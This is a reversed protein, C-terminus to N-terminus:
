KEDGFIIQQQILVGKALNLNVLEQWVSETVFPVFPHMIKLSEKLIYLLESLLEIRKLSGIKEEKIKEKIEEIWKDCLQHWFFERIEEAGLNFQYKEIYKSVKSIHRKTEVIRETKKIEKKSIEEIESKDINMIIFRSANWIKNVFNRNGKIKEERLPINSGPLANSYYWLRLADAGYRDFITKPEEYNGKSKSMKSGDSAFIMGTLFIDKFPVEGTRYLGLMLMRASWWFLIDRGHIMVQTPYYKKFDDGNVGGMTSFPWQGSSFWTDFVDEEKEWIEGNESEPEEDGLHIEGTGKITINHEKEFDTVSKGKNQLLWDYLEKGGSYWVPIRQGWWLQRSICWPQIEKFFHELAKGQGKPYVKVNGKEIENLAKKALSKVNLYWQNSIIPEINSKCRECITVEHETNEIKELLGLKELEACLAKSCEVSKMGKFREPIDGEMLGEESIVNVVELNHKLGLEFDVPSHAPTVKVAGTGLEMDVQEDAIVPIERNAIPLKVKKGIYKIYRRDKPHIAVATDGLMTEPRTTAVTIYQSPDEVLPYRIYAYIGRKLEHETDIDALATGCNPCQNIIRKDRYVLGEEFMKYFTEYVIKTLRSDLTFFERSYDASLGIRQEQKRANEANKMCFEYTQKYFEERGLDEKTEGKKELYKTFVNETQIGAHDKGPLLLTPHGTMRMYRGLVDHFSYGCTHGLHLNGNANPPPLTMTFPKKIEYGNEDLYKHMNEPNMVGSNKWLSYIETEKDSNYSKPLDEM